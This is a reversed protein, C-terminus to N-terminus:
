IMCFLIGKLIDDLYMDFYMDYDINDIVIDNVSLKNVTIIGDKTFFIYHSSDKKLPIAFVLLNKCEFFNTIFDNLQKNNFININYLESTLYDEIGVSKNEVGKLIIRKNLTDKILYKKRSKDFVLYQIVSRLEPYIKINTKFYPIEVICKNTYIGDKQIMIIDKDEIEYTTIFDHMIDSIMQNIGYVLVKNTRFINGIIINREKKDLTHLHNYIDTFGLANFLRPVCEKIDYLFCEKFVLKPNDTKFFEKHYWTKKLNIKHTLM